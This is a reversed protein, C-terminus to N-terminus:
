SLASKGGSYGVLKSSRIKSPETYLFNFVLVCLEKKNPFHCCNIINPNIMIKFNLKLDFKEGRFMSDFQLYIVLAIILVSLYIFSIKMVQVTM